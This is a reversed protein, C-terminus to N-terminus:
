KQKKAAEALEDELKKIIEDLEKRLKPLEKRAKAAAKEEDRGDLKAMERAVMEYNEIWWQHLDLDTEFDEGTIQKACKRIQTSFNRADFAKAKGEAKRKENAGGRGYRRNFEAEAARRETEADAGTSVTVTGTKWNVRKPMAVRYMELLLPIARYDKNEGLLELIRIVVASRAGKGTEKDFRPWYKLYKLEKLADVCSIAVEVNKKEKFYTKILLEGAEKPNHGMGGLALAAVGRIRPDKHRIVKKIAKITADNPIDHLSFVMEQREEVSKAKKFAAQFEKIAVKAEEDAVATVGQAAVFSCLLLLSFVSRM